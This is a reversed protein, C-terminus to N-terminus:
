DKLLGGRMRVSYLNIKNLFYFIPPLASASHSCALVLKQNSSNLHKITFSTISPFLQSFRTIWWEPPALMVHANRGDELRKVAPQLDITVYCFLKTYSKIDHLAQDILDIDIHELVDICTVIDYAEEPKRSWKEVSPDYGDVKITSPLESRFHDVLLGKGTGFDLVSSIPTFKNLRTVARPLRSTLGSRNVGFEPDSQHLQRNLAVQHNPDSLDM